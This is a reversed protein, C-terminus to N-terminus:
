SIIRRYAFTLFLGLLIGGAIDTTWHVGSFIRGMVLAAMIVYCATTAITCKSGNLRSQAWVAAPGMTGVALLSTSSPFSPELVGEVLVPRYNIALENFGLFLALEVIFVAGILIISRDVSKVSRTKILQHLGMFFFVLMCGIPLISALDTLDYLMWNVGIFDRAAGNITALGVSSGSPGISAVDLNLAVILILFLVLSTAALATSRNKTM